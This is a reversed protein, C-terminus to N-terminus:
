NYYNKEVSRYVRIGKSFGLAELTECLYQDLELHMEEKNDKLETTIRIIERYFGDRSPVKIMIGDGIM